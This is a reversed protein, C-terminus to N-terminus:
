LQLMFAAIMECTLAVHCEKREARLIYAQKLVAGGRTHEPVPGTKRLGSWRALGTSSNARFDALGARVADRCSPQKPPKLGKRASKFVCAGAGAGFLFGLIFVDALVNGGMFILVRGLLTKLVQDL